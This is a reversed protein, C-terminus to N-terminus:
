LRTLLARKNASRARVSLSETYAFKMGRNWVAPQAVPASPLRCAPHRMNNISCNSASANASLMSVSRTVLKKATGVM